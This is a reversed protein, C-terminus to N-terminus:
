KKAGAVIGDGKATEYNEREMGVGPSTFFSDVNTELRNVMRELNDWMTELIKKADSRSPRLTWVDEINEDFDKLLERIEKFKPGYEKWFNVIYARDFKAMESKEEEIGSKVAEIGYVPKAKEFSDPNLKRALENALAMIKKNIAWISVNESPDVFKPLDQSGSDVVFTQVNKLVESWARWDRDGLGLEPGVAQPGKILNKGAGSESTVFSKEFINKIDSKLREFNINSSAFTEKIENLIPGYLKLLLKLIALANKDAATNAKLKNVEKDLNKLNDAKEGVFEKLTKGQVTRSESSKQERFINIADITSNYLAYIGVFKNMFEKNDSFNVIYGLRMFTSDFIDRKERSESPNKPEMFVKNIDAQTTELVPNSGFTYDAIIKNGIEALLNFLKIVIKKSEAQENSLTKVKDLELIDRPMEIKGINYIQRLAEGLENNKSVDKLSLLKNLQKILAANKGEFIETKGTLNTNKFEEIYDIVKNVNDNWIEINQKYVVNDPGLKILPQQGSLGFFINQALKEMNAYSSQLDKVSKIEGDAFLYNSLFIFNSLLLLSIKKMFVREDFINKVM